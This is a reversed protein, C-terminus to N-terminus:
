HEIVSIAQLGTSDTRHRANGQRQGLITNPNRNGVPQAYKHGTLRFKSSLLAEEGSQVAPRKRTARFSRGSKSSSASMSRKRNSISRKSAKGALKVEVGNIERPVNSVDVDGAYYTVRPGAERIRSM